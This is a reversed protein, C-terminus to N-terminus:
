KKEKRIADLKALAQRRKRSIRDVEKTDFPMGGRSVIERCVEELTKWAAVERPDHGALASAELSEIHDLAPKLLQAAAPAADIDLCAREWANMAAEHQERTWDSM